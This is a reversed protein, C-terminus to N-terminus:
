SINRQENGKGKAKKKAGLSKQNTIIIAFSKAWFHKYCYSDFFHLGRPFFILFFFFTISFSMFNNLNKFFEKKILFNGKPLKKM